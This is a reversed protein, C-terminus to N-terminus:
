RTVGNSAYIHGALEIDNLDYTDTGLTGSNSVTINFDKYGNIPVFGGTRAAPSVSVHAAPAPYSFRVAKLASLNGYDYELGDYGTSDELGVSPWYSGPLSQYQFVIDGNEHLIAEFSFPANGSYSQVNRWEVVFYHDSGDGGTSFYVAGSNDPSGVRLDDWFPAIFSNPNTDNPIGPGSWEWIGTGFTILGNTSFYLQSQPMGYFPFDFGINIPGTFEDDGTLGSDTSASIWSYSVTDEYTYGFGDPGGAATPQANQAQASFNSGLPFAKFARVCETPLSHLLGRDKMLGPDFPPCDPTADQAHAQAMRVPAVVFSLLVLATLLAMLKHQMFDEM